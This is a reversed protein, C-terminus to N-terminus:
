QSEWPPTRAMVSAKSTFLRSYISDGSLMFRAQLGPAISISSRYEYIHYEKTDVGKKFDTVWEYQTYKSNQDNESTYFSVWANAFATKFDLSTRKIYLRACAYGNRTFLQLSANYGTIDTPLVRNAEDFQPGRWIVAYRLGVFGFEFGFRFQVLRPQIGHNLTWYTDYSGSSKVAAFTSIDSSTDSSFIVITTNITLMNKPLGSWILRAYGNETSKLELKVPLQGECLTKPDSTIQEQQNLNDPSCLWTNKHVKLRNKIDYGALSLLWRLSQDEFITQLHKDSYKLHHLLQEKSMALRPDDSTQTKTVHSELIKILDLSTNLLQVQELLKPSIEFIENPDYDESYKSVVQTIYVKDAQRPNSRQIQLVIRDLDRKTNELANYYDQTVYPPLKTRIAESSLSGLSYYVSDESDELNPLATNNTSEYTQFGYDRRAPEFHLLFEETPGISIHNALWHLLLLGHRPYEHGFKRSKLDEIKHLTEITSAAACIFFLSLCCLLRLLGM